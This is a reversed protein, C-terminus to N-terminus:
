MYLKNIFPFINIYLDAPSFTDGRTGKSDRLGQAQGNPQICRVGSANCAGLDCKLKLHCKSLALHNESLWNNQEFLVKERTCTHFNFFVWSEPYIRSYRLELGLTVADYSLLCPVTRGTVM